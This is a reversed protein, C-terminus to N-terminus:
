KRPRREREDLIGTLRDRLYTMQWPSLRVLHQHPRNPDTAVIGVFDGSVYLGDMDTIRHRIM